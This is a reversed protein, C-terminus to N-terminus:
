QELKASKLYIEKAQAATIEGTIYRKSIRIATASPRKGEVMAIGMAHDVKSQRILNSQTQM